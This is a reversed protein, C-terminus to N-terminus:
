IFDERCPTFIDLLTGKQSILKCGHMLNKPVYITDGKKMRYVKDEISYDFVGEACYSIQEHEHQHEEGIAGDQFYVQVIMLNNSYSKVRRSVKGEVVTELQCTEDTIFQQM